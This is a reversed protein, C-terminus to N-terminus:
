AGSTEEIGQREVQRCNGHPLEGEQQFFCPHFIGTGFTSVLWLLNPFYADSKPRGAYPRAASNRPSKGIVTLPLQKVPPRSQPFGVARWGISCRNLSNVSLKGIAREIHQRSKM